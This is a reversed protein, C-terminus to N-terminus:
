LFIKIFNAYWKKYIPKVHIPHGVKPLHVHTVTLSRSLDNLHTIQFYSDNTRQM